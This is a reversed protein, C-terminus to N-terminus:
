GSKEKEENDAILALWWMLRELAEFREKPPLGMVYHAFVREPADLDSM